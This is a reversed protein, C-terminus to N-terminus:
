LWGAIWASEIIVIWLLLSLLLPWFGPRFVPSPRIM